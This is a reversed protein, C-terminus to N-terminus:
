ELIKLKGPRIEFVEGQELLSKLIEEAEKIGSRVLVEEYSAGDGLDTDKILNLIKEYPNETIKEDAEIIREEEVESKDLRDLELTRVKIWRKDNIKKVIEYMIYRQSNWERPRGIISVIDGVDFGNLKKNDFTRANIKNSGDDIIFSGNDNKAVVTALINVRSIKGFSTKIYNPQWGEEKVYEGNIIDKIRVKYAIQRKINNNM